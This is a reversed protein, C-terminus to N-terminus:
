KKIYTYSKDLKEYIFMDQFIDREKDLDRNVLGTCVVIGDKNLLKYINNKAIELKKPDNRAWDLINSILLIDYTNKIYLNGFLNFLYFDLKTDLCDILEERKTFITKGEPQRSLDYFLNYFNTKKIIHNKYFEIVREEIFSSPKVKSILEKLWKNNDLVQPYLCDTYKLTWIRLYYYYLTLRNMDFADVKRAELYRATLLQDSSALVTLVDKDYFDIDLLDILDETTKYYINDYGEVQNKFSIIRSALFDKIYIDDTM